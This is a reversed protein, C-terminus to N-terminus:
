GASISSSSSLQDLPPADPFNMLAEVVKDATAVGDGTSALGNFVIAFHVTSGDTTEAAGALSSVGNLTGTKARVAGAAVSNRLRKRLTGTQGMVPLGQYFASTSAHSQVTELLLRCTVRNSVDLGSGDVMHLGKTSVANLRLSDEVRTVGLAWSGPADDKRGVEKIMMEATTNDSWRLMEGVVQGVPESDVFALVQPASKAARPEDISAARPEGTVIVGKEALLTKLLAAADASPNTSATRKGRDNAVTFNDNVMLGSIPGVEGTSTYSRKWSPLRLSSDFRRGDGVVAGTVTTVGTKVVADVLADFSTADSPDHTQTKTYDSTELLPDGGGVLWLDGNLTGGIPASTARVETRFKTEPSIRALASTATLVKQNSAPVVQRDPAEGVVLGGAAAIVLCSTNKAAEIAPNKLQDAVVLSLRQRGVAFQLSRPARRASLVPTHQQVRAGSVAGSEIGAKLVLAVGLVGMSVLSLAVAREIVGISSKGSM